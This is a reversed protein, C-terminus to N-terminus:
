ELQARWRPRPRVFGPSHTRLRTAPRRSIAWRAAPARAANATCTCDSGRAARARCRVDARWREGCSASCISSRAPGCRARIASRFIASRACSSSSSARRAPSRRRTFRTTRVRRSSTSSCRETARASVDRGRSHGRARIADAIGRAIEEAQAHVAHRFRRPCAGVVRSDPARSPQAGASLRAIEGSPRRAVMVSLEADFISRRSPSPRADASRSGRAVDGRRGDRRSGPQPRRLRRPLSKVFLAGLERARRALEEARRSTAIRASRFATTACGRKQQARDQMIALVDRVRVCPRTVCRPPSRTSASRSSRSRSSTATARSIPPPTPTM